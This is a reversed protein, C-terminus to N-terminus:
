ANMIGDAAQKTMIVLEKEPRTEWRMYLHPHEKNFDDVCGEMIKRRKKRNLKHRIAWPILPLMLPGMMLLSHDLSTSRCDKLEDNIKSIAIRYVESKMLGHLSVHFPDDEFKLDQGFNIHRQAVVIKPVSKNVNDIVNRSPAPPAPRTTLYSDDDTVLM